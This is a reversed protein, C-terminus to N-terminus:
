NKSYRAQSKIQAIKNREARWDSPTKAVSSVFQKEGIRWYIMHHRGIRTRDVVGGVSAIADMIPALHQQKSM